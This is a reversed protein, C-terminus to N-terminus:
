LYGDKNIQTYVSVHSRSFFVFCIATSLSANWSSRSRFIPCEGYKNKQNDSTENIDAFMWSVLKESPTIHTYALRIYGRTQLATDVSSLYTKEQIKM